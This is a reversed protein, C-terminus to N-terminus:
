RRPATVDKKQISASDSSSILSKWWDKDSWQAVLMEGCSLIRRLETVTRECASLDRIYVAGNLSRSYTTALLTCLSKNFKVQESQLQLTRAV